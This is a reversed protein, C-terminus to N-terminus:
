FFSALAAALGVILAGWQALPGQKGLLYFAALAGIVLVAALALKAKDAGTSITEVQSTAM